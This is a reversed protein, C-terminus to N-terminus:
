DKLQPTKVAAGLLSNFEERHNPNADNAPPAADDDSFDPKAGGKRHEKIAKKRMEVLEPQDITELIKEVPIVVGIGTNIGGSAEAASDVVTDENLNAIDFHGHMLGLLRFQTAGIQHVLPWHIFVPSGSLGGISRAEVLYADTYGCHETRVPEGRMMALNGTRIIPINRKLGHHSKFLGVIFIEDGVELRNAALVEATGAIGKDPTDDTRLKITRFDEETSFDVTAIAVDTSGINPHFYWHAKSWNDERVGGNVLNSRIYIEWGKEAFASINHEATVLFRFGIGGETISAVFATARPTFRGSKEDKNGLFLVCKRVMDEVYMLPAECWSPTLCEVDYEGSETLPNFM